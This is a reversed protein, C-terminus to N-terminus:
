IRELVTKSLIKYLIGHISYRQHNRLTYLDAARNAIMFTPHVVAGSEGRPLMAHMDRRNATHTSNEGFGINSVLNVNPSVCLGNQSYVTYSWMFDWTTPRPSRYLRDFHFTRYKRIIFDDFINAIQNQSKFAPFTKMELDYYKWARRWTAWGWILPQRSLYYSGDGRRRGAQFNSGSIHMVRTDDRYHDLLTQCFGFFSLSPLCDDELIIGQEVQDFFWTIGSSVARACGLNEDLFRTRVDCTWDVQEVIRRAEACGAADGAHGPRPGDAAVFLQRPRVQRIQDFVQRTQEPRNFVLLLVPTELSTAPRTSRPMAHPPLGTM